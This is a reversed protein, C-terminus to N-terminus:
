VVVWLIIHNLYDTVQPLTMTNLAVKLLIEAIDHHLVRLFGGVQWMDSVFKIECHQITYVEGHVPNVMM